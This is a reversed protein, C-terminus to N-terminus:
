QLNCWKEEKCCYLIPSNTCAYFQSCSIQNMEPGVNQKLFTGVNSCYSFGAFVHQAAMNNKSCM